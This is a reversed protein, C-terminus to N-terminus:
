IVWNRDVFIIKVRYELMERTLLGWIYVLRGNQKKLRRYYYKEKMRNDGMFGYGSVAINTLRSRPLTYEFKSNNEM